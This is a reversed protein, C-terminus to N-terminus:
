RAFTAVFSSKRGSEDWTVGLGEGSFKSLQTFHPMADSVDTLPGYIPSEHGCIKDKEHLCRVEVALDAGATLTACAEGGCAVSINMEVTERRVDVTDAVLDGAAEKAFAVLAAEQEATAIDDIIIVSRAPYPNRETDGLTANAKVVAVVHLGQLDVGDWGGTTIDWALIAETGTLGLEANSFCYGAWVDCSRTELYNGAIQSTDAVDAVAVSAALAFASVMSLARIM